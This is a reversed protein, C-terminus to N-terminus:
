QTPSGDGGSPFDRPTVTVTDRGSRLATGAIEGTLKDSRVVEVGNVFV